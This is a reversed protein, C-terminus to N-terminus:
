AVQAPRHQLLPQVLESHGALALYIPDDIRRLVFTYDEIVRVIDNGQALLYGNDSVPVKVANPHGFSSIVVRHRDSFYCIGDALWGLSYFNRYKNSSTTKCLPDEKDVQFDEFFVAKDSFLAKVVSISSQSLNGGSITIKGKDKTQNEEKCDVWLMFSTFILVLKNDRLGIKLLIPCLNRLEPHPMLVEGKDYKGIGCM